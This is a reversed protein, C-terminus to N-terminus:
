VRPLAKMVRRRFVTQFLWFPTICEGWVSCVPLFLPYFFRTHTHTYSLFLSPSLKLAYTGYFSSQSYMHLFVSPPLSNPSLPFSIPASFHWIFSFSTKDTCCFHCFYTESILLPAYKFCKTLTNMIWICISLNRICCPKSLTVTKKEAQSKKKKKKVLIVIFFSLSLVMYSESKFKIAISRKFPNQMERDFRQQTVSSHFWEFTSPLAQEVNALVTPWDCGNMHCGRWLKWNEDSDSPSVCTLWVYSGIYFM